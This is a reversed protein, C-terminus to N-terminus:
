AATGSGPAKGLDDEGRDPADGSQAKHIDPVTMRHAADAVYPTGPPEGNPTGTATGSVPQGESKTTGPLPLAVLAELRLHLDRIAEPPLPKEWGHDDMLRCANKSLEDVALLRRQREAKFSQNGRPCRTGKLTRSEESCRATFADIITANEVSAEVQPIVESLRKDLDDECDILPNIGDWWSSTLGAQLRRGLERASYVYARIVWAMSMKAWEELPPPASESADGHSQDPHKSPKARSASGGAMSRAAARVTKFEGAKTKEVVALQMESPVRTLATLERPSRAISTDAAAQKAEPTISRAIQTYLRVTRPSDGTSEATEDAFTAVTATKAKKGGGKKGPAGGLKTEPHLQEYIEKRELFLDARELVTMRKRAINEDIATLRLVRPDNTDLINCPIELYGLRLSAELRDRGYVLAFDATIGIPAQLGIEPISRMLKRVNAENVAREPQVRISSVQVMEARRAVVAREAVIHKVVPIVDRGCEPCPYATVSDVASAPLLEHDDGELNAGCQSCVVLDVHEPTSTETHRAEPTLRLTSM